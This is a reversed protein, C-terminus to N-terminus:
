KSVSQFKLTVASAAPVSLNIVRNGYLIAFKAGRMKKNAIVTAVTNDPNLFSVSELFENEEKFESYLMKAGRNVFKSFHALVYYDSTRTVTATPTHYGIVGSGIDNPEDWDHPNRSDSPGGYEDLTLNWRVLASAGANFWSVVEGVTYAIDNSGSISGTETLYVPRDYDYLLDTILKVELSPYHMAVGQINNIAGGTFAKAETSFFNFDWSWIETSIGNAKFTPAIYNNILDSMEDATYVAAPIGHVGTPENQPVISWFKIGESEYARLFKVLYRAFVDYYAPNLKTNNVSTWEYKTKMWLPPSWVSSIFKIDPNIAQARKLNPIIYNKDREISFHELNIDTQGEPMDDYTYWEVAFDTVGCPQRLINLGLGQEKDFLDILVRNRNEESMKNLNACSSDTLAGGFGEITQMTAEPFIELVSEAKVTKNEFYKSVKIDTENYSKLMARGGNTTYVGTVDGKITHSIETEETIESEVSTVSETPESSTVVSDQSSSNDQSVSVEEEIYEYVIEVEESLSSTENDVSRCGTAIAAILTACIFVSILRTYIKINM